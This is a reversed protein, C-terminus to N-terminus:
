DNDDITSDSGAKEDRDYTEKQFTEIFYQNKNFFVKIFQFEKRKRPQFTKRKFLNTNKYFHRM